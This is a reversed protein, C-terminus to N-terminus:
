LSCFWLPGICIDGLRRSERLFIREQRTIGVFHIQDLSKRMIIVFIAFCICMDYFGYCPVCCKLVTHGNIQQPGKSPTSYITELATFEM